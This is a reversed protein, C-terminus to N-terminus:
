FLLEEYGILRYVAKRKQDPDEIGEVQKTIEGFRDAVRKIGPVVSEDRAQIICDIDLLKYPLVGKIRMGLKCSERLCILKEKISLKIEDMSPPEIFTQKISSTFSSDLIIPDLYEIEHDGDELSEFLIDLDNNTLGGYDIESELLFRDEDISKIDSLLKPTSRSDKTYIVILGIAYLKPEMVYAKSNPQAITNWNVTNDFLGQLDVVRYAANVFIAFDTFRIHILGSKVQLLYEPNIKRMPGRSCPSKFEWVVFYLKDNVVLTSIGDPSYSTYDIFGPLSTFEHINTEFLTNMIMRSVPEFLHGFRTHINGNFGGAYGFKELIFKQFGRSEFKMDVLKGIESGGIARSRKKHWDDSGQKEDHKTIEILDSFQKLREFPDVSQHYHGLLEKIKIRVKEAELTETM